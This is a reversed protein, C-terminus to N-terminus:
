SWRPLSLSESTRPKSHSRAGGGPLVHPANHLNSNVLFLTLPCVRHAIVAAAENANLSM